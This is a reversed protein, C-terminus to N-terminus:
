PENGDQKDYPGKGICVVNTINEHKLSTMINM